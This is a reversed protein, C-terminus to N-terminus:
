KIGKLKSQIDYLYTLATLGFKFENIYWTNKVMKTILKLLFKRQKEDIEIKM